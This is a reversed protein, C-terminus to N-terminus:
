TFIPVLSVRIVVTLTTQFLSKDLLRVHFILGAKPDIRQGSKVTRDHSVDDARFPRYYNTFISFYEDLPHSVGNVRFGLCLTPKSAM